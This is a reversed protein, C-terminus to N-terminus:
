PNEQRLLKRLFVVEKELHDIHKEYQEILQDASFMNNNLTDKRKVGFAIEEDQGILQHLNIGLVHSIKKIWFFKIEIQNNEIRSLQRQSIELADALYQQSFGNQIRFRRINAGIDM